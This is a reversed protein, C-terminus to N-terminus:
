WLKLNGKNILAHTKNNENEIKETINEGIESIKYKNCSEKLLNWREHLGIGYMNLYADIYDLVNKRDNDDTIDEFLRSVLANYQIKILKYDKKEVSPMFMNKINIISNINSTLNPYKSKLYPFGRKKGTKSLSRSIQNQHEDTFDGALELANLLMEERINEKIGIHDLGGELALLVDNHHGHTKGIIEAAYQTIIEITNEENFIIMGDEDYSLNNEEYIKGGFTNKITRNELDSLKYEIKAFYSSGNSNKENNQKINIGKQSLNRMISQVIVDTNEVILIDNNSSSDHTYVEKKTGDYSWRFSAVVYGGNSKNKYKGENTREVNRAFITKYDININSDFNVSPPEKSLYYYHKGGSPTNIIRTDKFEEPISSEITEISIDTEPNHADIDIVVFFLSLSEIYHCWFATGYHEDDFGVYDAPKNEWKGYPQKGNNTFSNKNLENKISNYIKKSIDPSINKEQTLKDALGNTDGKNEYLSNLIWLKIEDHLICINDIIQFIQNKTETYETKISESDKLVIKDIQEIFEKYKIHNKAMIVLEKKFFFFLIPTDM